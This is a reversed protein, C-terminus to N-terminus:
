PTEPLGRRNQSRLWARSSSPQSGRSRGGAYRTVVGGDTVNHRRVGRHSPHSTTRSESGPCFVDYGPLSSSEEIEEPGIRHRAGSFVGGDKM